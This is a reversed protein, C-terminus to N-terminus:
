RGKGDGNGGNLKEDVMSLLCHIEHCCDPLDKDLIMPIRDTRGLAHNLYLFVYGCFQEYDKNQRVLEEMREWM